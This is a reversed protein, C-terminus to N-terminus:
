ADLEEVTMGDQHLIYAIQEPALDLDLFVGSEDQNGDGILFPPHYLVVDGDKYPIAPIGRGAIWKGKESRVRVM